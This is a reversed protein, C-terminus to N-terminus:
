QELKCTLARADHPPVTIQLTRANDYVTDTYYELIPGHTAAITLIRTCETSGPNLVLVLLDPGNRLVYAIDRLDAAQSGLMGDARTGDTFFEEHDAVLAAAEAFRTCDLGDLPTWQFHMIGKAGCALMRLCEVKINVHRPPQYYGIGALLPTDDLAAVTDALIRETAGYGASAVDCSMRMRAWDICYLERARKTQYGSYVYMRADPVAQRLGERYVQALEAWMTTTYDRWQDMYTKVITDKTVKGEIGLRKGFRAMNRESFSNMLPGFEMDWWLGDPPSPASAIYAALADVTAGRGDEIIWAPDLYTYRAGNHKDDFPVFASEKTALKRLFNVHTSECVIRYGHKRLLPYYVDRAHTREIYANFGAAAWTELLADMDNGDYGGAGFGHCMLFEIRQPRKRPLAPLVHVDVVKPLELVSRNEGEVWMHIRREGAGTATFVLGLTHLRDNSYSSHAGERYDAPQLSAWNLEHRTWTEGGRVVDSSQYGAWQGTWKYPEKGGWPRMALDPPTLVALSADVLPRPLPSVVTVPLHQAHGAAMFVEDQSPWNRVTTTGAAVVRRVYTGASPDIRGDIVTAAAWTSDDFEPSLWGDAAVASQKWESPEDLPVAGAKLVSALPAALTMAVVNLGPTLYATASGDGATTLAEGNVFVRAGKRVQVDLTAVAATRFQTLPSQYYVADTEPDTVTYAFSFEGPEEVTVAIDGTQRTAPTVDLQTRGESRRKGQRFLWRLAVTGEGRGQIQVGVSNRGMMMPPITGSRMTAPLGDPLLMVRGFEDPAHFARTVPSWMSAEKGAKNNRCVNAAIMMGVTPQLGLSSWPIAAEVTWFGDHMACATQWPGDWTPDMALGEYRTGLANTAFQRYDRGDQRGLFIEVSDDRFVKADHGTEKAVFEHLRQQTPDLVAAHCRIGLYVNRSDWLLRMDSDEQAAGGGKHRYFQEAVPAHNWCADDLSGDLVPPTRTPAAGLICPTWARERMIPGLWYHVQTGPSNGYHDQWASVLLMSVKSFDVLGKTSRAERFDFSVDIWRNLHSGRLDRRMVVMRNHNDLLQLQIHSAEGTTTAYLAFHIRDYGTWDQPQDFRYRIARVGKDVCALRMHLARRGEKTEAVLPAVNRDVTCGDVDGPRLVTVGGLVPAALSASVLAAMMERM